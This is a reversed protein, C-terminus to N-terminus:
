SMWANSHRDHMKTLLAAQNNIVHVVGAKPKPFERIYMASVAGKMPKAVGSSTATALNPIRKLPLAIAGLATNPRIRQTVVSTRGCRDSSTCANRNRGAKTNFVPSRARLLPTSSSNTIHTRAVIPSLQPTSIPESTIGEIECCGNELSSNALYQNSLPQSSSSSAVLTDAALRQQRDFCRRSMTTPGDVRQPGKIFLEDQSLMVGSAVIMTAPITSANFHTEAAEFIQYTASETEQEDFRLSSSHDTLSQITSLKRVSKPGSLLDSLRTLRRQHLTSDATQSQQHEINHSYPTSGILPKIAPVLYSSARRSVRRPGLSSLREKKSIDVISSFSDVNTKMCLPTAALSEVVKLSPPTIVGVDMSVRTEPVSFVRAVAAWKAFETKRTSTRLSKLCNNRWEVVELKEADLNELQLIEVTKTVESTDIKKKRTRLKNDLSSEVCSVQSTVAKSLISLPKEPSKFPLSRVAHRDADNIAPQLECQFRTNDVSQDAQAAAAFVADFIDEQFHSSAYNFLKQAFCKQRYYVNTEALILEVCSIAMAESENDEISALQLWRNVAVIDM